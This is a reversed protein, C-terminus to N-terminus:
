RWDRDRRSDVLTRSSSALISNSTLELEHVMSALKWRGDVTCSTVCMWSKEHGHVITIAAINAITPILVFVMGLVMRKFVRALRDPKHKPPSPSASFSNVLPSQKPPDSSISVQSDTLEVTSSYANPLNSAQLRARQQRRFRLAPYLLSLFLATLALNIFVDVGAVVVILTPHFGIICESHSFGAYPLAYAAGGMTSLCCLNILMGTVWVWDRFRPRHSGRIAHAREVLFLYMCAKTAFYFTLCVIITGHCNRYTDLGSTNLMVTLSFIFAMASIYCAIILVRVGSMSQLTSFSLDRIRIGLQFTLQSKHNYWLRPSM